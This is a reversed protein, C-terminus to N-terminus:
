TEDAGKMSKGLFKGGIKGGVKGFPIIGLASLGVEGWTADGYMAQAGTILFSGGSAIAAFPLLPPFFIGAIGLGMGIWGLAEGAIDLGEKFSDWGSDEIGETLGHTIQSLASEFVDEWRDYYFDFNDAEEKWEDYAQRKAEDEEAQEEAEPSGEEPQLFGGTGRGDKDGDMSEYREWLDECKNACDNIIPQIIDI